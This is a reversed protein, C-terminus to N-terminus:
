PSTAWLLTQHLMYDASQQLIKLYEMETGISPSRVTTSQKLCRHRCSSIISSNWSIRAHVLGDCAVAVRILREELISWCSNNRPLASKKVGKYSNAVSLFNDRARKRRRGGLAQTILIQPKSEKSIVAGVTAFGQKVM